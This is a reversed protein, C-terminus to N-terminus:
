PLLCNLGLSIMYYPALCAPFVKLSNCHTFFIETFFFLSNAASVFPLFSQLVQAIGTFYNISSYVPFRLNALQNPWRHKRFQCTLGRGECLFQSTPAQKGSKTEFSHNVQGQSLCKWTTLSVLPHSLKCRLSSPFRNAFANSLTRLM